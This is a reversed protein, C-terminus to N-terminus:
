KLYKIEESWEDLNKLEKLSKNAFTLCADNRNCSAPGTLEKGVWSVIDERLYSIFIREFLYSGRGRDKFDQFSQKGLWCFDFLLECRCTM